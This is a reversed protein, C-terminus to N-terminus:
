IGKLLIKICYLLEKVLKNPELKEGIISKDFKYKKLM